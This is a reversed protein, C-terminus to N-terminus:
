SGKDEPQGGSDIEPFCRQGSVERLCFNFCKYEVLYLCDCAGVNCWRKNGQGALKYLDKGEMRKLEARITCPNM